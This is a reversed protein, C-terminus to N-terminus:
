GLPQDPLLDVYRQSRWAAQRRALESFAMSAKFPEGGLCHGLPLFGVQEIDPGIVSKIPGVTVAVVFDLRLAEKQARAWAHKKIQDCNMM